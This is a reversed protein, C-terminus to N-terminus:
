NEQKQPLRKKWSCPPRCNQADDGFKRHYYCIKQSDSKHPTTSRSRSTGRSRSRNRGRFSREFKRTLAEIALRLANIDGPQNSETAKKSASVDSPLAVIGAPAQGISSIQPQSVEKIRDAQAALTALDDLQSIALIGRMHEPLQEMFLTRLVSDNCQGGALNRLRQLFLSPKEDGMAQGRLLRRLRTEQSDSLSDIIRRKLAEYKGQEPPADIIDGVIGLLDADLHIVVHRYKADDSTIRYLAFTMEVVTFYRAPNDRWFPQPLKIAKVVGIEPPREYNRAPSIGTFGAAGDLGAAGEAEQAMADTKGGPRTTKEPTHEVPM